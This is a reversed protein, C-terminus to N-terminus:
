SCFITQKLDSLTCLNDFSIIPHFPKSHLYLPICLLKVFVLLRSGSLTWLNALLTMIPALQVVCLYPKFYKLISVNSLLLFCKYLKTVLYTEQLSSGGCSPPISLLMFFKESHSIQQVFGQSYFWRIFHNISQNIRSHISIRITGSFKLYYLNNTMQM